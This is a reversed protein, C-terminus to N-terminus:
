RVGTPVLGKEVLVLGPYPYVAAVPRQELRLDDTLLRARMTVSDAITESAADHSLPYVADLDEIAYLGGPKVVPFLAEFSAIIHSKVHSGDDIVLDFPPCLEVVRQLTAPDSQDGQLAILRRSDGLRKAYLDLGYITARPFYNRWMRLSNGGGLPDRYGGVGIELVCSIERRNTRLHRAYYTTYGHYGRAKDTAWLIGLADLNPSVVRGLRDKTVDVLARPLRNAV